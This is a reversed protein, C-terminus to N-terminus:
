CQWMGLVSLHPSVEVRQGPSLGGSDTQDRLVRLDQSWGVVALFFHAKYYHQRHFGECKDCYDVAVRTGARIYDM